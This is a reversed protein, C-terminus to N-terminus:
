CAQAQMPKASPDAQLEGNTAIEYQLQRLPPVGDEDWEAVSPQKIKIALAAKLQTGYYAIIESKKM